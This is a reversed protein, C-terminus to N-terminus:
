VMMVADGSNEEGLSSSILHMILVVVTLGSVTSPSATVTHQHLRWSMERGKERRELVPSIECESLGASEESVPLHFQGALM